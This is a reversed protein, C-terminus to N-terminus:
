RASFPIIGMGQGPLLHMGIIPVSLAASLITLWKLHNIEATRAQQERDATEPLDLEEPKIETAGYGVNEISKILKDLSTESDRFEVWGRETALNVSATVVGSQKKLTREIRSSCNACTMGTLALEIRLPQPAGAADQPTTTPEKIAM